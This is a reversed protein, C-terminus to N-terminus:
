EKNVFKEMMEQRYTELQRLKYVAESLTEAAQPFKISLYYYLEEEDYKSKYSIWYTSSDIFDHSSQSYSAFNLPFWYLFHDIIHRQEPKALLKEAYTMRNWKEPYTDLTNFYSREIRTRNDSGPPFSSALWRLGDKNGTNALARALNHASQPHPGQNLDGARVMNWCKERDWDDLYVKAVALQQLNMSIVDRLANKTFHDYGDLHRQYIEEANVALKRALAEGEDLIDDIRQKLTQANPADPLLTLYTQYYFAAVLNGGEIRDYTTALTLYLAPDYNYQHKIYNFSWHIPYKDAKLFHEAAQEWEQRDAAALGAEFAAVAEPSPEFAHVKATFGLVLFVTLLFINLIKRPM